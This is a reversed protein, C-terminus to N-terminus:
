VNAPKRKKVPPCCPTLSEVVPGCIEPKGGCCDTLMFLV